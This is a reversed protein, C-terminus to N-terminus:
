GMLRESYLSDRSATVSADDTTDVPQVESAKFPHWGYALEGAKVCDDFQLVVSAGDVSYRAIAWLGKLDARDGIYRVHKFGETM